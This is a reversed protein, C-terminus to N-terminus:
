ANQNDRGKSKVGYRSEKELRGEGSGAGADYGNMMKPKTVNAVESSSRVNAKAVGKANINDSGHAKGGDKFKRAIDLGRGLPGGNARKETKGGRHRANINDNGHEKGVGDRKGEVPGGRKAGASMPGMAGLGGPPAMPPRSVAVPVVPRSPMAVPGPAAAPSVPGPGARDAGGRPAIVVNVQSKPSKGKGHPMAGGQSRGTLAEKKVMKKVLGRDEKVDPHKKSPAHAMDMMRKHHESHSYIKTM